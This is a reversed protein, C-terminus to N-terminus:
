WFSLWNSDDRISWRSSSYVSFRRLCSCVVLTAAIVPGGVLNVMCGRTEDVWPGSRFQIVFCLPWDRTTSNRPCVIGGLVSMARHGVSMEPDDSNLLHGLCSELTESAMYTDSVMQSDVAQTPGSVGSM